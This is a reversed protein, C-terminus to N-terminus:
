KTEYYLNIDYKTKLLHFLEHRDHWIEDFLRDSSRAILECRLDEYEKETKKKRNFFINSAGFLIVGILFLPLLHNTGFIQFLSDIISTSQPVILFHYSIYFLFIAYLLTMSLLFFHTSKYREYKIKREILHEIMKKTTEDLRNDLQRLFLEM